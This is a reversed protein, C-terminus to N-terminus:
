VLNRKIAKFPNWEAVPTITLGFISDQPKVRHYIFRGIANIGTNSNKQLRLSSASNDM